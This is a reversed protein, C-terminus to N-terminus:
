CVSSATPAAGHRQLQELSMRAEAAGLRVPEGRRHDLARGCVRDRCVATLSARTFKCSLETRIEDGAALRLEMGAAPVRATLKRRARLRMEIWQRDADYFARHEFDAPDFDARLRRNLVRLINLNFQATVGRSDNYAAHLRAPDKVLDVGGPLRRRPRPHGRRGPLLRQAGGSALKSPERSSSSCGGTGPGLAELDHVFDGVIGRV